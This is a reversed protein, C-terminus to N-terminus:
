LRKKFSTRLQQKIITHDIMKSQQFGLYKYTEDEKMPQILTGVVLEFGTVDLTGRTKCKELGFSMCIDDAFHKTKEILTKIHPASSIYFKIDDM